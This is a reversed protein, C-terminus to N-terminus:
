YAVENGNPIKSLVEAVIEDMPLFKADMKTISESFISLTVSTSGDLAMIMVGAGMLVAQEAPIAMIVFPEGTDTGGTAAGVNGLVPAVMGGEEFGQATCEFVTGNWNVTYSQGITVNITDSLLGEGDFESIEVTTEPLIYGSEEYPYGEPLYKQAIKTTEGTIHYVAFTVETSGDLAQVIYNNNQTGEALKIIMFRSTESLEYAIVTGTGELEFATRLYEVGNWMVKYKEGVVLDIIGYAASVFGQSDVTCTQMPIIVEETQNDYPYGEPLFKQAIPIVGGGGGGVISFEVISSGDLAVVMIGAGIMAAQEPTPLMIIFPEETPEGGLIAGINGLVPITMGETDAWVCECEYETGNWTVTYTAGVTANIVDPLMGAGTSPDITVTSSFDVKDGGGLDKPYGDPLFKFDITQMAEEILEVSFTVESSGDYVSVYMNSQGYLKLTRIGFPYEGDSSDESGICENFFVTNSRKAKCIYEEGNWVVRYSKGVAISIFYARDDPIQAEGDYNEYRTSPVVKATLEPCLAEHTKNAYPFGNPFFQQKIVGNNALLTETLLVNDPIVEQKLIGEDNLVEDGVPPLFEKKVLGDEGMLNVLNDPLYKEDIKVAELAEAVCISCTGTGNYVYLLMRDLSHSDNLRISGYETNFTVAIGGFSGDTFYINEAVNEYVGDIVVDEQSNDFNGNFVIRAIYTKENELRKNYSLEKASNRDLEQTQMPIVIEGIGAYPYGEPLVERKIIGFPNLLDAGSGGIDDPLYQEAIKGNEDLLSESEPVQELVEEVIEAKDTETWYDTGKVPARGPNGQPIFFNFVPDTETGSNTIYASTGAPLTTVSGARVSIKNAGEEVTDLKKKDAASMLGDSTPTAAGLEGVIQEGSADTATVGRVLTKPTVTDNSLDILTEDGLVVKNVAM